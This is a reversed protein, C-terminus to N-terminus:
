KTDGIVVFERGKSKKVPKGEIKEEPLHKCKTLYWKEFKCRIGFWLPHPCSEDPMSTTALQYITGKPSYKKFLEVLNKKMDQCAKCSEMSSGWAAIFKTDKFDKDSMIESEIYALNDEDVTLGRASLKTTVVKSFLNIVTLEKLSMDRMHSVLHNLTTDDSTFNEATRTPYLLVIVAKQGEAGELAKTISYTHSGDESTVITTRVASTTKIYSM